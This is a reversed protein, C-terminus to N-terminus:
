DVRDGEREGGFMKAVIASLRAEVSADIRSSETEVVCGGRTILPDPQLQWSRSEDGISLASAVIEIDDPHMRVRPSRVAVPLHQMTDRVVAVIEGPDVKLERRIVLKSVLIALDAISNVVQDDLENFPQALGNLLQDLREAKENIEATGQEVGHKRGLEFGEDYAEKHLAELSRATPMSANSVSGSDTVVMGEMLPLDFLKVEDRGSDAGPQASM